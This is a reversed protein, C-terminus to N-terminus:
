VFTYLLNRDYFHYVSNIHRLIRGEVLHRAYNVAECRDRALGVTILWDILQHGTFVDRYIKIRWRKDAAISIKCNQLHHTIFQECVQKTENSLEEWSPLNLTDAGYWIQRCYKVIWPVAVESTNLGFIGFIIISQGFNLTADLFSLEIYIGSMRNQKMFLTWVCLALGVFMSCLLLILLVMHRMIQPDHRVNFEEEIIESDDDVQTQYKRLVNQCEDRKQNQCGFGSPCMVYSADRNAASKEFLDEIEVVPSDECLGENITPLGNCQVGTGNESSSGASSRSGLQGGSGHLTEQPTDSSMNGSDRDSVDRVVDQYGLFRRHYRQHFILCGCTVIFCLVLLTVSVIAEFRGYVFNPNSKNFSIDLYKNFAVMVGSLIVPIGFGIFIFLPTLKMVFCLSRCQLFLLTIALITTWLRSSYVGVIFIAFLSYGPWGETIQLTNWLIAGFCSILQAILLFTTIKHPVKNIKRALTFMILVWLCAVMGIISIDLTFTDLQKLYDSPDTSTISIMKASIFMLPASLFTCAVMSSAILDIDILYQNAIVFVTPASPFTGYLFGFTSLDITDTTNFGSNLISVVERTILPMALLKVMILIGPVVLTAGRLTHVKGVMRIGLLFLASASFASGLTDLINAIYLPVKNKMLVNGIVGLITMFVIPNLFINKLVSAVMKLKERNTSNESVEGYTLLPQRSNALKKQGIEILIFAIPNLIALNIPAVLYLYSVYESHSNKYLAEVLPYGIAFDNSQTCFMAFIGARGLNLPKLVLLTIVLVSTFVISKSVLISLLFMWNVSSLDLKVLSMFILSPLSFTGVFINMGKAETESVWNMRGAFYGCLIVAFCQTIAPYLNDVAPGTSTIAEM